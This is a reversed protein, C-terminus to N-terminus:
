CNDASDPVGDDDKDTDVPAPPPLKKAKKMFFDVGLTVEVNNAFMKGETCADTMVHRVEFRPSVTSNAMIRLGLGWHMQWDMDSGLDGSVHHYMGGGTIVYPTGNARILHWLLDLTYDGAINYNGEPRGKYAIVEANGEAGLWHTFMCGIRVGFLGGEGAMSGSIKDIAADQLFWEDDVALHGGGYLGFYPSPSPVDANATVVSLMVAGCLTVVALIGAHKHQM